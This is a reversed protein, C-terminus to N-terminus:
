SLKLTNQNNPKKLTFSHLTVTDFYKLLIIYVDLKLFKEAYPVIQFKQSVLMNSVCRLVLLRKRETPRDVMDCTQM